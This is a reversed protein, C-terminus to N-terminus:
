TILFLEFIGSNVSKCLAIDVAGTVHGAVDVHVSITDANSTKSNDAILVRELSAGFFKTSSPTISSTAYAGKLSFSVAGVVVGFVLLAAIAIGSTKKLGNGRPLPSRNQNM